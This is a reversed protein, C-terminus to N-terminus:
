VQSEELGISKKVGEWNFLGIPLLREHAVSYDRRWERQCSGKGVSLSPPYKRHSLLFMVGIKWPVVLGVFM